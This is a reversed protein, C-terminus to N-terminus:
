RQVEAWDVARMDERTPTFSVYRPVAGALVLSPVGFSLEVGGGPLGPRTVRRGRSGPGRLWDMAEDFTM